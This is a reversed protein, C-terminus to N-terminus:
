HMTGAMSVRWTTLKTFWIGGDNRYVDALDSGASQVEITSGGLQLDYNSVVREAYFPVPLGDAGFTAEEITTTYGYFSSTTTGVQIMSLDPMEFFIQDNADPNLLVVDFEAWDAGFQVGLENLDFTHFSDDNLNEVDVVAIGLSEFQGTTWSFDSAFSWPGSKRNGGFDHVSGWGGFNSMSFEIRDAGTGGWVVTPMTGPSVWSIHFTDDEAGGALLEDGDASGYLTDNGGGSLVAEANFNSDHPDWFLAETNDNDGFIVLDDEG